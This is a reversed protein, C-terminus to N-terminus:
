SSQSDPSEHAQPLHGTHEMEDTRDAPDHPASEQGLAQAKALHFASRIVALHTFGQPYNGWLTGSQPDIEESFLGLDSAYSVLQEFLRYADDVRGALALNDVLWFSCIAFSAESGPLGDDALYRYVLGNVTLREQIREVTSRIRPDTPPLFGVVPIMLATADLEDGDLSQTFAGINKNYGRTLICSRIEARTNTWHALRQKDDCYIGLKIARDVAVWCLLKSYLFHKKGSRYEWIGHDKSRWLHAARDALFCVEDWWRQPLPKDLRRYYLYAADLVEGYIDHQEQRYAANGLRVPRSDCYGALHELTTEALEEEGRVSYMIQARGRGAINLRNLWELFDTAERDYGILQLAYIILSSDRLWTYRYDWNRIGGPAEPVSTTPAAILAGTPGYTLLKLALASRKVLPEYLGRYSCRNSWARWYAVTQELSEEPNTRPPDPISSSCNEQYVLELWVRDGPTILIKTQLSGDSQQKFRVPCRLVLRKNDARALAGGSLAEIVTDSRAYDFTPLFSVTVEVNGSLGVIARLLLRANSNTTTAEHPQVPMFDTVQINGNGTEFTTTLVNTGDIYSQSSEFEAAPQVVFYGGRSSDLLRCFVAPSDFDPWCCWDISGNRGVLAASRTDGILGYDSVPLYCDSM